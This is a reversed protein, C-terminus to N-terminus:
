TEWLDPRLQRRSIKGGTARDIGIAVRPGVQGLRKAKNIVPQSVGAADALAKETGLMRIAQVILKQIKDSM